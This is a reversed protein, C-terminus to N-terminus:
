AALKILTTGASLARKERRTMGLMFVSNVLKSKNARYRARKEKNSYARPRAADPADGVSYVARPYCRQGEADRVWRVIHVRKPMTKLTRHLRTLTAGCADKDIGLHACLDGNTMPGHEALADLMSQALDGYGVRSNTPKAPTATM